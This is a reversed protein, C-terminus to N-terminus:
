FLDARSVDDLLSQSHRPLGQRRLGRAKQVSRKLPVASDPLLHHSLAIRIPLKTRETRQRRSRRRPGIRLHRPVAFETWAHVSLDAREIEVFIAGAIVRREAEEIDLERDLANRGAFDADFEIANGVSILSGAADPCSM